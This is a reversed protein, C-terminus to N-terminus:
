RGVYICKVETHLSHEKRLVFKAVATTGFHIAIPDTFVDAHFLSHKM